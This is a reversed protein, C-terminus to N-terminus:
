KIVFSNINGDEEIWDIDKNRGRTGIERWTEINISVKWQGARREKQDLRRIAEICSKLGLTWYIRALEM